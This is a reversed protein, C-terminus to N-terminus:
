ARKAAKRSMLDVDAVGVLELAEEEDTLQGVGYSIELPRDDPRECTASVHESVRELLQLAGEHDTDPLLVAFEDGAWRFCRDGTRVSRELARALEQLCRDGELHGYGDNVAKFDDLDILAVSLEGGSRGSRAVETKLSEEFARRNPLATLGDVKALRGASAMRVRRAREIDLYITLVASAALILLGDAAIRTAAASSADGWLLPLWLAVLLVVLFAFARRPPHVVGVGLWAIFVIDYPSGANGSLWGLVVIGALGGYGVALLANASWLPDLRALRLAVAGGAVVLLGGIVWGPWGIAESPHDLPFLALALLSSFGLLAAVVRQASALDAGAYPDPRPSFLNRL